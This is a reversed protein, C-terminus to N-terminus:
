LKFLALLAFYLGCSVVLYLVCGAVYYQGRASSCGLISLSFHLLMWVCCLRLLLVILIELMGLGCVVSKASQM